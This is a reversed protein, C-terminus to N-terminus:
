FHAGSNRDTTARSTNEIERIALEFIRKAQGVTCGSETIIELIKCLVETLEEGRSM